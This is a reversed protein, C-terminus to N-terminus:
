THSNWQQIAMFLAIMGSISGKSNQRDPKINGAIDAYTAMNRRMWDLIPDDCLFKGMAQLRNFENMPRTTSRIGQGCGVMKIRRKDMARMVEWQGWRDFGVAKIKFRQKEEEVGAVIEEYDVGDTINMSKWIPVDRFGPLALFNKPMWFRCTARLNEGEPSVM